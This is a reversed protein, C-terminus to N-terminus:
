TIYSIHRCVKIDLNATVNLPINNPPQKNKNYGVQICFDTDDPHDQCEIAWTEKLFLVVAIILIKKMSVSSTSFAGLLKPVGKMHCPGFNIM